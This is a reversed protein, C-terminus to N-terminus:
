RRKLSALHRRADAIDARLSSAMERLMDRGQSRALSYEIKFQMLPCTMLRQHEIKAWDIEDDLKHLMATLDNLTQQASPPPPEVPAVTKTHRKGGDLELARLEKYNRARYAANIQAMLVTRRQKEVPDTTTDPHYQRALKRYLLKLEKDSATVKAYELEVSDPQPGHRYKADFAEELSGYPGWIPDGAGSMSFPQDAMQLNEIAQWVSDLENQLKGILRDYLQGFKDLEDQLKSLEARHQALIARKREIQAYLQEIRLKDLSM